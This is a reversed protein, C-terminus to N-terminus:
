IHFHGFLLSYMVVVMLTWVFVVPCWLVGVGLWVAVRLRHGTLYFGRLGRWFFPLMAVAAATALFTIFDFRVANSIGVVGLQLITAAAACPVVRSRTVSDHLEEM